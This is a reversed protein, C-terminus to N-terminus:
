EGRGAEAPTRPAGLVKVVVITADDDLPVLGRFGRVARFVADVITDAPQNRNALVIRGLRTLGFMDDVDGLPAAEVVGDSYFVLIDGPGLARVRFPGAPRPLMGLPLGTSELQEITGTASRYHLPYHHGANSYRLRGAAVDIEAFVLTMFQNDASLRLLTESLRGMLQSPDGDIQIQTYIASKAMAMLLGAPMGHGAVDGVVVALRGGSLPLYDFYDGGVESAPESRGAIDLEPVAPPGAPLLNVQLERAIELERKRREAEVTDRLLRAHDLALAVQAAFGALSRVEAGGFAHREFRGVILLACLREGQGVVPVIVSSGTTPAWIRELVGPPTKEHDAVLVPHRDVFREAVLEWAPRSRFRYRHEGGSDARQLVCSCAGTAPDPVVMVTVDPEAVRLLSELVAEELREPEFASGATLGFDYVADLERAKREYARAGPLALAARADVVVLFVLALAAAHGTFTALLAHAPVELFGDIGAAIAIPVIAAVGGLLVMTRQRRDLQVIWELPATMALLGVGVALPWGAWPPAPDAALWGAATAGATALLGALGIGLVGGLLRRWGVATRLALDVCTAGLVALAAAALGLLLTTMASELASPLSLAAVLLGYLLGLLLALVAFGGVQLKPLAEPQVRAGLSRYWGAALVLVAVGALDALLGAAPVGPVGTVGVALVAAIVPVTLRSHALGLDFM